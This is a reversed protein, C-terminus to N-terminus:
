VVALVSTAPAGPVPVVAPLDGSNINNYREFRDSVFSVVVFLATSQHIVISYLIIHLPIHLSHNICSDM